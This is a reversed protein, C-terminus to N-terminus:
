CSYLSDLISLFLFLKGVEVSNSLCALMGVGNSVSLSYFDVGRRKNYPVNYLNVSSVLNRSIGEQELTVRYHAILGSHSSLRIYEVLVYELSAKIGFAFNLALSFVIARVLM